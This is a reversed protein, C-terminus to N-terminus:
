ATVAKERKHRSVKCPRGCKECRWGGLGTGDNEGKPVQGFGAIGVGDQMTLAPKKAQASCCNSTYFFVPDGHKTSKKPKRM